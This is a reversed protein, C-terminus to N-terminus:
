FYRGQLIYFNLDRELAEIVAKNRGKIKVPYKISIFDYFPLFVPERRM